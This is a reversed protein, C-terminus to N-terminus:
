AHVVLVPRATHQTVAAAVSGLLVESLGTRGHSGLVVLGAEHDDALTVLARWISDATRAVVSTAEFGAARALEAGDDAVEKARDAVQDDFGPPVAVTAGVFSTLEAPSWVTAVIARRGHELQRGAEEVAARAQDSGDFCFLVPRADPV